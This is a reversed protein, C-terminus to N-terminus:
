RPAARTGQPGSLRIPHAVKGIGTAAACASTPAWVTARPVRVSCWTVNSKGSGFDIGGAINYTGANLIVTQGAPCSALASNIHEATAGPDLIACVTTRAPIGGVIGVNEWNVSRSPAVITQQARTSGPLCLLILGFLLLTHHRM